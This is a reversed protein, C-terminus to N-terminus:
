PNQYRKNLTAVISGLARCAADLDSAAPAAALAYDLKSATGKLDSLMAPYASMFEAPLSPERTRFRQAILCFQSYAETEWGLDYAVSVTESFGNSSLEKEFIKRAPSTLLNTSRLDSIRDNKLETLFAVMGKPDIQLNQGYSNALYVIQALTNRVRASTQPDDSDGAAVVSIYGAIAQGLSYGNRIALQEKRHAAVISQVFTTVSLVIAIISLALSIKESIKM